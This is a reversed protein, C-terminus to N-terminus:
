LLQKTYLIRRLISLLAKQRQKTGDDLPRPCRTKLWLILPEFGRPIVLPEKAESIEKILAFSPSLEETGFYGDKFIIKKPFIRNLLFRKRTFDKDLKDWLLGVDSLFNEAFGIVAEAKNKDYKFDALEVDIVTEDLKIRDLEKKAEDDSLIGKGNAKIVYTRDINLEELKKRKNAIFLDNKKVEEELGDLLTARLLKRQINSLKFNNLYERFRTELDFKAIRTHKTCLKNVCHYYPYRQNRGKSFSGTLPKLCEGCLVARRLIFNENRSQRIVGKSNISNYAKLWTEKDTVTEYTHEKELKWSKAEMVGFYFKKNLIKDITKDSAEKGFLKKFGNKNLRNALEVKTFVGLSAEKFLTNLLTKYGPLLTLTKKGNLVTHRYGIPAGWPWRGNDFAATMGDTTRESKINNDLEALVLLISKMAKGIANDESPETASVVEIGNKALVAILGLGDSTNRAWRDYKYVIVSIGKNEKRQCFKILKLLEPRGSITKASVGEEKYIEVVELGRKRAYDLCSDKQFDLSYNTVQEETSVRTYIVAKSM